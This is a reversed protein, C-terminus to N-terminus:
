GQSLLVREVEEHLVNSCVFSSKWVWMEFGKTAQTNIPM